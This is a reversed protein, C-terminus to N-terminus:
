KTKELLASYINQRYAWQKFWVGAQQKAGGRNETQQKAPSIYLANVMFCQLPFGLTSDHDIRTVHKLHSLQM